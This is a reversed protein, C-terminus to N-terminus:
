TVRATQQSREASDQMVQDNGPGHVDTQERPLPDGELGTSDGNCGRKSRRLAWWGVGAMLLELATQWIRCAGTIVIAAGPGVIPQLGLLLVGERVGLGAPAFVALFGAVQALSFLGVMSAFYAPSPEAFSLVLCVFGLGFVTYSVVLTGVMILFGITTIRHELPLRGSLRLFANVTPYFVRPASAFAMVTVATLLFATRVTNQAVGTLTLGVVAAAIIGATMHLIMSTVAVRISIGERRYLYAAALIAWIKGPVYKGLLPLYCLGLSREYSIQVGQAILLRRLVSAFLLLAALGPLVATAAWEPRPWATNGVAESNAAVHRVLFALVTGLLFFSVIQLCRFRWGKERQEGPRTTLEAV